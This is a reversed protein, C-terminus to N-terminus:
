KCLALPRRPKGSPETPLSDAQLAPSTPSTPEIGLNPLDRPPPFYCGEGTNKGSFNWPCLRRVPWFGFPRLSNSVVSCSLLLCRPAESQGLSALYGNRRKWSVNTARQPPPTTRAELPSRRKPLATCGGSHGAWNSQLSPRPVSNSMQQPSWTQPAQPLSGGGLPHQRQTKQM